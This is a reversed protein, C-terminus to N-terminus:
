HKCFIRLTESGWVYIICSLAIRLIISLLQVFNKYHPSEKAVDAKGCLLYDEEDNVSSEEEDFCWKKLDM